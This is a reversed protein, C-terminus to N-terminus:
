SPSAVRAAALLFNINEAISEGDKWLGQIFANSRAVDDGLFREMLTCLVQIDSAHEDAQPHVLLLAEGGAQAFFFPAFGEQLDEQAYKNFVEQLEEEQRCQNGDVARENASQHPAVRAREPQRAQPGCHASEAGQNQSRRDFIERLHPSLSKTLPPAPPLSSESAEHVVYGHVQFGNYSTRSQITVLGVAELMQVASGVTRLSCGCAEAIQQQTLWVISGARAAPMGVLVAYVLKANQSLVGTDAATVRKPLMSFPELPPTSRRATPNDKMADASRWLASWPGTLERQAPGKTKKPASWM